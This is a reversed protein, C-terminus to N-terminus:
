SRALAVGAAAAVLGGGVSCALYLIALAHGRAKATQVADLQMTSFTTYGGLLGTLVLSTVITGYRQEWGIALLTSLYAIVLAGSLNIILTSFKFATGLLRDIVRGLQWRLLSGLGGGIGILLIDSAEMPM